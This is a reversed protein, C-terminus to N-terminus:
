SSSPKQRNANCSKLHLSPDSSSWNVIDLPALKEVLEVQMSTAADDVVANDDVLVDIIVGVVDVTPVSLICSVVIFNVNGVEIDETVATVGEVSVVVVAIVVVWNGTDVVVPPFTVLVLITIVLLILTAMVETIV